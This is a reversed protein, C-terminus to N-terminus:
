EYNWINLSGKAPIPSVLPMADDLAWVYRNDSYDGFDLEQESLDYRVDETKCYGLVNCKGIIAGTPLNDATYGHKALISKFPEEGCAKEDIKKSAHIYLEGLFSKPKWSRTENGKERLVVLTAWPQILSLVKM